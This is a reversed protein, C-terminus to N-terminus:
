FVEPPKQFEPMKPTGGGGGVLYVRGGVGIDKDDGYKIFIVKDKPKM